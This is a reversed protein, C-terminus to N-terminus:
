REGGAAVLPKSADIGLGAVAALLSVVAYTLFAAHWVAAPNGQFAWQVGTLTLPSLAAGLNGWMNAWGIVAGVHRGGVDQGYAWASPNSLDTAFAVVCLAATVALWHDLGLCGLFALGVAARAAVVPLCRGWRRGLRATLGDTIWGGLLMGVIGIGLTTTQIWGQQRPPLGFVEGLYSPLLTILFAWCFNSAFQTFSNLWLSRDLMMALLPPWGVPRSALPNGPGPQAAEPLVPPAPDAPSDLVKSPGTFGAPNPPLLPKPGEQRPPFVLSPPVPSYGEILDAEAANVAPHERPHDRYLIVFLCAVAIGVGGYLLFPIRWGSYPGGGPFSGAMLYYTLVPAVVGGLRGGVAVVSSAMGRVSAPVWRRVVSAAVPYAGAEFLGCGLRLVFLGVFGGALGMLATCLSWLAVYATLVVRPGVRDGLWGAPLQFLAYAWFFASLLWALQDKSIGLDLRIRDGAISLCIRDLYLLIAVAMTLLVMLYRIRTPRPGTFTM